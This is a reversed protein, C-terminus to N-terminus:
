ASVTQPKNGVLWPREHMTPPQREDLKGIATNIATIMEDFPVDFKQMINSSGILKTLTGESLCHDVMDQFLRLADSEAEKETTGAGTVTSRQLSSVSAIFGADDDNKEVELNILFFYTDKAESRALWYTVSKM